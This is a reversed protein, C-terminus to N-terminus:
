GVDDNLARLPEIRRLRRAPLYCAVAAVIIVSLPAFTVACQM